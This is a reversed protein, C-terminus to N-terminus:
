SKRERRATFIKIAPIVRRAMFRNYFRIAEFAIRSRPFLMISSLVKRGFRWMSHAIKLPYVPLLSGTSHTWGPGLKPKTRVGETGDDYDYLIKWVEYLPQEEAQFEWPWHGGELFERDLWRTHPAFKGYGLCEGTKGGAEVVAQIIPTAAFYAAEISDCHTFLAQFSLM